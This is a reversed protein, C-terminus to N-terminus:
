MYMVIVGIDERSDLQKVIQHQAKTVSPSQVVLIKTYHHTYM